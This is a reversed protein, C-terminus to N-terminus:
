RLLPNVHTLLALPRLSLLFFTDGNLEAAGDNWLSVSNILNRNFIGILMQLPTTPRPAKPGLRQGQGLQKLYGSEKNTM